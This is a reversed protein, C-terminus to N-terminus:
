LRSPRAPTPRAGTTTPGRSQPTRQTPVQTRWFADEAAQDFPNDWFEVLQGASFRLLHVIPRFFPEAGNNFATGAVLVLDGTEDTFLSNITFGGQGASVEAVKVLYCRVADVGVYDGSLPHAGAIHFVVNEAYQALPSDLPLMRLREYAGRVDSMRDDFGM